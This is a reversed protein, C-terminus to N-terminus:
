VRFRVCFSEFYLAEWEMLCYGRYKDGRSGWIECPFRCGLYAFHLSLLLMGHPTFDVNRKLKHKWNMSNEVWGCSDTLQCNIYNRTKFRQVCMTAPIIVFKIKKAVIETIGTREMQPFLLTVIFPFKSVARQHERTLPRRYVSLRPVRFDETREPSTLPEVTFFGCLVSHELKSSVDLTDTPLV